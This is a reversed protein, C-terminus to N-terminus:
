ISNPPKSLKFSPNNEIESFDIDLYVNVEKGNKSDTKSEVAIPYNGSKTTEFTKRSVKDLLCIISEPKKDRASIRIEPRSESREPHNSMYKESFEAMKDVYDLLIKERKTLPEYNNAKHCAIRCECYLDKRTQIDATEPQKQLELFLREDEIASAEQFDKFWDYLAPYLRKLGSMLTKLEEQEEIYEAELDVEEYYAQEDEM